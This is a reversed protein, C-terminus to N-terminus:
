YLRQTKRAFEASFCGFYEAEYANGCGPILISISKDTLQDFYDKLAPSVNGVDWGTQSKEYRESWYQDNFM